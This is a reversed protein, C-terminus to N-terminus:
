KMINSASPQVVQILKKLDELELMDFWMGGCNICRDIEVDQFKVKEMAQACKPCQM